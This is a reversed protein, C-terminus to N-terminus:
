EIWGSQILRNKWLSELRLDELGQKPVSRCTAGHIQNGSSDKTDTSSPCDADEEHESVMATRGMQSRDSNGSSKTQDNDRNSSTIPLFPPECLQEGQGLKRSGTCGSGRVIPRCIQCVSGDFTTGM